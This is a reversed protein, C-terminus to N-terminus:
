QKTREKIKNLTEYTCSLEIKTIKYGKATYDALLDYKKITKLDEYVYENLKRELDSSSSWNLEYNKTFLETEVEIKIVVAYIGNFLKNLNKSNLNDFEIIHYNEKNIDEKKLTIGNFPKIYIFLTILIITLITIYKKM